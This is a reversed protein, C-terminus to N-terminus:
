EETIGERGAEQTGDVTFDHISGLLCPLNPLDIKLLLSVWKQTLTNHFWALIRPDLASM